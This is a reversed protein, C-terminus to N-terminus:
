PLKENMQPKDWKMVGEWTRHAGKGPTPLSKKGGDGQSGRGAEGSVSKAAM